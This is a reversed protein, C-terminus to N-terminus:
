KTIYGKWMKWVTSVNWHALGRPTTYGETALMRAIDDCSKGAAHLAKAREIAAPWTRM